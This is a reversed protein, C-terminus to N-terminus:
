LAGSVQVEANAAGDDGVLCGPSRGIVRSLQRWGAIIVRGRHESGVSALANELNSAADGLATEGFMGATGALKHLLDIMQEYDEDMPRDGAALKWVMDLTQQKRERYRDEISPTLSGIAAKTEEVAAGTPSQSEVRGYRDIVEKLERVRVPKCLHAQMGAALCNAVDEAYANATLAVIPLIAPTFGASRLRRTAELGDIEPMQVDMLVFDYM